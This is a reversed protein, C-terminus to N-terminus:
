TQFKRRQIELIHILSSSMYFYVTIGTSTSRPWLLEIIETTTLHNEVVPHKKKKKRQYFNFRKPIYPHNKQYRQLIKTGLDSSGGRTLHTKIVYCGNNVM